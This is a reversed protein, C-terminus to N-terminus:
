VERRKVKEIYESPLMGVEEKFCRTFYKPTNIGVAMGLENVRIDPNQRAIRCAEKMRVSLIFASIGQGTLARLKNYLTSSSVCMDRAFQERDYEELHDSVCRIARELFLEDASLQEEGADLGSLAPDGEEAEKLRLRVAANNYNMYLRAAGYVAASSILVYVLWM